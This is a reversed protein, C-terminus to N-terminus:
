PGIHAVVLWEGSRSRRCRHEEVRAITGGLMGLPMEGVIGLNQLGIGIRPVIPEVRSIALSPRDRLCATPRVTAALEELEGVHSGLRTAREGGDRREGELGDLADVGDDVELALVVAEGDVDLAQCHAARTAGSADSRSVQIRLSRALSERWLSTAM